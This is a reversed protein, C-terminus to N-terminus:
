LIEYNAIQEHVYINKHGKRANADINADIGLRVDEALLAISDM